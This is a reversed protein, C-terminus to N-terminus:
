VENIATRREPSTNAAMKSKLDQMERAVEDLPCSSCGGYRVTSQDVNAIVKGCVICILM